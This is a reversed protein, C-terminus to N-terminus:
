YAVGGITGMITTMSTTHEAQFTRIVSLEVGWHRTFEYGLSGGLAPGGSSTDGGGTSVLHLGAGAGVSAFAGPGDANVYHTLALMPYAVISDGWFGRGSYHVVTHDDVGVGLKLDTFLGTKGDYDSFGPLFLRGTGASVGFVFGRRHDDFAAAPSAGAALLVLVVVLAVPGARHSM